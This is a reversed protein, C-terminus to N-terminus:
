DAGAMATGRQHGVGPQLAAVALEVGSYRAVTRAHLAQELLEGKRTTDRAVTSRIHGARDVLAALEPVRERVGEARREVIRIEDDGAHDTVALGLGARQRGGPM